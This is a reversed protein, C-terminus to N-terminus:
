IVVRYGKTLYVWLVCSYVYLAATRRACRWRYETNIGFPQLQIFVADAGARRLVAVIGLSQDRQRFDAL